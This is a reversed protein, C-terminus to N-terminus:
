CTTRVPYPPMADFCAIGLVDLLPARRVFYPAHPYSFTHLIFRLHIAMLTYLISRLAYLKRRHGDTARAARPHLRPPRRAERHPRGHVLVVVDRPQILRRPSIRTPM